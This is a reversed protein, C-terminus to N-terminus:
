ANRTNYAVGSISIQALRIFGAADPTGIGFDVRTVNAPMKFVGFDNVRVVSIINEVLELLGYVSTSDVTGGLLSMDGALNRTGVQIVLEYTRSDKGLHGTTIAEIPFAVMDVDVCPYIPQAAHMLGVRWSKIRAALTVDNKLANYVANLIETCTHNTM